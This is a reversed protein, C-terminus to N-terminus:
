PHSEAEAVAPARNASGAPESALPARARVQSADFAAFLREGLVAALGRWSSMHNGALLRAAGSPLGGFNRFAACQHALAPHRRPSPPPKGGVMWREGEAGLLFSVIRAFDGSYQAAVVDMSPGRGSGSGACALAVMLHGVAQM